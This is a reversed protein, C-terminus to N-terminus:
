MPSCGAVTSPTSASGSSIARFSNTEAQRSIFVDSKFELGSRADIVQPASNSKIRQILEGAKM